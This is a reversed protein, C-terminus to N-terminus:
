RPSARRGCRRPPPRRHEARVAVPGHRQTGRHDQPNPRQFPTRCCREIGKMADGWVPGATTSGHAGSIFTGGVTQNNLSLWHGQTNAGAIM